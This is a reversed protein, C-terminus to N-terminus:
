SLVRRHNQFSNATFESHIRLAGESLTWEICTPPHSCSSLPADNLSALHACGQHGVDNEIAALAV